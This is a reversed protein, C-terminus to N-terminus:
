NFNMKSMNLGPIWRPGLKHYDGNGCVLALHRTSNHDEVMKIIKEYYVDKHNRLDKSQRFLDIMYGTRQLLAKGGYQTVKTSAHNYDVLVNRKLETNSLSGYGEAFKMPNSESAPQAGVLNKMRFPKPDYEAIEMEYGDNTHIKKMKTGEWQPLMHKGHIVGYGERFTRPRCATLTLKRLSGISIM